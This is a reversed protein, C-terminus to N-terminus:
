KFYSSAELCGLNMVSIQPYNYVETLSKLKPNESIKDFSIEKQYQKQKERQSCVAITPIIAEGKSIILM